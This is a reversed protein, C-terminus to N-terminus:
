CGYTILYQHDIIKAFELVDIKFLNNKVHPQANRFTSVFWHFGRVTAYLNVNIDYINKNISIFGDGFGNGVTVRVCFCFLMKSYGYVCAYLSINM